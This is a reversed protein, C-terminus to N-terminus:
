RQVIPTESSRICGLYSDILRMRDARPWPQAGASHRFNMTLPRDAQFPPWEPLGPDGGFSAINDRVWRLAAIQDELGFEGSGGGSQRSLDPHALFGLPGIRYAASVLVVGQRAFQTGDLVPESTRGAVFGGGHIWVM